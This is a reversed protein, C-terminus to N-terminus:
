RGNAMAERITEQILDNPVVVGLGSNEQFTVRPLQTQQSVAVDIYPLYGSVIGIMRCDNNPETGTISVIEPKTFVPGGSNGPYISADVLFTSDTGSFWPQISAIIGQRVIVYNREDGAIGLPFGMTFVGDGEGISKSSLQERTFTHEDRQITRYNIGENMLLQANISLVAIDAQPHVTWNVDAPDIPYINSSQNAITNFRAQLTANRSQAGMFVHRNTVLFNRQLVQGQDNVDGTPWGYLFGTSHFNVKGDESSEGLAVIANQYFPPILPM